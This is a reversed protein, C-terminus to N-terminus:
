LENLIDGIPFTIHEQRPMCRVKMEIYDKVRETTGPNSCLHISILSKARSVARAIQVMMYESLGTGELNIHQLCKNRKILSCLSDVVQTSSDSFRYEREYWPLDANNSRPSRSGHMQAM